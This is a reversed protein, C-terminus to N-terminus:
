QEPQAQAGPEQAGSLSPERRPQCHGGQPPSYYGARYSATCLLVKVKQKGSATVCCLGCSVGPSAPFPAGERLSVEESAPCALTLSSLRPQRHSLSLCLPLTVQDPGFFLAPGLVSHVRSVGVRGSHRVCVCVQIEQEQDQGLVWTLLGPTLPPDPLRASYEHGSSSEPERNIRDTDRLRNTFLGKNSDRETSGGRRRRRRGCKEWIFNSVQRFTM